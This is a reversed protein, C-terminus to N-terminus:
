VSKETSFERESALVVFFKIGVNALLLKLERFM